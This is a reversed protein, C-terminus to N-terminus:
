KKKYVLVNHLAGSDAQSGVLTPYKLSACTAASHITQVGGVDEATNAGTFYKNVFGKFGALSSQWDTNDAGFQVCSGPTSSLTASSGQFVMRLQKGRVRRQYRDRICM